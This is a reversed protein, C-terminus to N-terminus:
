SGEALPTLVYHRERTDTFPIPIIEAFFDLPFIFWPPTRFREIAEVPEYGEKEVRVKYYWYWIFPITVPTEGRRMEEGAGKFHVTADPPESTIIVRSRICGTCTALAVLLSLACLSPLLHVKM